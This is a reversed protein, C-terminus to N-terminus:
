YHNMVSEEWPQEESDDKM